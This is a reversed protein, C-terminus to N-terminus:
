RTNGNLSLTPLLASRTQPAAQRSAEYGLRAASIVPDNIRAIEYVSSLDVAHGPLSLISLAGTFIATKASVRARMRIRMSLNQVKLM